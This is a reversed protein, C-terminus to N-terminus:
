ADRWIERLAHVEHALMELLLLECAVRTTATLSYPEGSVAAPLGAIEGPGLIRNLLRSFTTGLSLEVKGSIVLYVGHASDGREFLVTHAPEHRISGLRELCSAVLDRSPLSLSQQKMAHVSERKAWGPRQAKLCPDRHGNDCALQEAASFAHVTIIAASFHTPVACKCHQDARKLSEEGSVAHAIGVSQWDDVIAEDALEAGVAKEAIERTLRQLREVPDLM